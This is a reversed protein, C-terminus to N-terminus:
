LVELVLSSVDSTPIKSSTYMSAPPNLSMVVVYFVNMRKPLNHIGDVAIKFGFDPDYTAFYKLDLLPPDENEVSLKEELWDLLTNQNNTRQATLAQM